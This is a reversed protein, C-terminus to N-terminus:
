DTCKILTERPMLTTIYITSRHWNVILWWNSVRVRVRVITSDRFLLIGPNMKHKNSVSCFLSHSVSISYRCLYLYLAPSLIIIIIIERYILLRHLFLTPYFSLTLCCLFLSLLLASFLSLSLSLSLSQPAFLIDYKM